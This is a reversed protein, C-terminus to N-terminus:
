YGTNIGFFMGSMKRKKLEQCLVDEQYKYLPYDHDSTYLQPTMYDEGFLMKLVEHYRHPVPIMIRDFPLRILDSVVSKDLVIDYEPRTMRLVTYTLKEGNTKEYRRGTESILKHLQLKLPKDRDIRIGLIEEVEAVKSDILNKNENENEIKRIESLKVLMFRIQERQVRDKEDDPAMNDLVDIDVGTIYPCGHYTSMRKDDTSIELGNVVRSVLNEYHSDVFDEVIHLGDGLKGARVSDSFIQYDERLMTIDIDDDWPIFGGHRVTGLLTGWNAFYKIGLKNCLLDIRYLIELESAWFRKMMAKVVFGEIEEDVFWKEDFSLMNAMGVDGIFTHKM